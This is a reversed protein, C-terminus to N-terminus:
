KNNKSQICKAGFEIMQKYEMEKAQEFDGNEKMFNYTEIDTMYIKEILWDVATLKTKNSM